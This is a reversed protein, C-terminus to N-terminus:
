KKMSSIDKFKKQGPKKGKNKNKLKWEEIFDLKEKEEVEKRKIEEMKTREYMVRNKEFEKKAKESYKMQALTDSFLNVFHTIELMTREHGSGTNLHVEFSFFL